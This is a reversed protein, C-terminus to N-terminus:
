LCVCRCHLTWIDWYGYHQISELCYCNHKSTNVCSLTLSLKRPIFLIILKTRSDSWECSSVASNVKVSVLSRCLFFKFSLPTANLERGESSARSQLTMAKLSSDKRVANQSEGQIREQTSDLFRRKTDSDLRRKRTVSGLLSKQSGSNAKIQYNDTRGIRNNEGLCYSQLFFFM